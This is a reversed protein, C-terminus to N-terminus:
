LAEIGGRLRGALWMSGLVASLVLGGVTYLDWNKAKIVSMRMDATQLHMSRLEKGDKFRLENDYMLEEILDVAHYKRRAAVHAVRQLHLMNQSYAEKESRLIKTVKAYFEDSTFCIRM